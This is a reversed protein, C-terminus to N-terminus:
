TAIITGEQFLYFAYRVDLRNHRIISKTDTEQTFDGRLSALVSSSLQISTPTGLLSPQTMELLVPYWLRQANVHFQSLLTTAKEKVLCFCFHILPLCKLTMTSPILVALKMCKDLSNFSNNIHFCLIVRGERKLILEIHVPEPDKPNVKISRLLEVLQHVKMNLTDFKM